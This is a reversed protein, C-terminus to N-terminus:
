EDRETPNWYPELSLGGVRWTGRVRRLVLRLLFEDRGRPFVTNRLWVDATAADTEVRVDRIRAEGIAPNWQQGERSRYANALREECLSALTAGDGRRSAEVFKKVLSRVAESEDNRSTVHSEAGLPAYRLTVRNRDCRRIEFKFLNGKGSRVLFTAGPRVAEGHVELQWDLVAPAHKLEEFPTAVPQIAADGGVHRLGDFRKTMAMIEPDDPDIFLDDDVRQGEMDQTVIRIRGEDFAVLAGARGPDPFTLDLITPEPGHKRPRVHRELEEALANHGAHRAVDVPTVDNYHSKTGAVAQVDAGHELLLACVSAWGREAAQHLRTMSHAPWGLLTGDPLRANVDGGDALFQRVEALAAQELSEGPTPTAGAPVRPPASDPHRPEPARAPRQSELLTALGDAGMRWAGDIFRFPLDWEIWEADDAFRFRVKVITRAADSYAGVVQHRSRGRDYVALLRRPTDQKFREVFAEFALDAGDGASRAAYAERYDVADVLPEANGEALQDFYRTVTRVAGAKTDLPPRSEGCASLWATLVVLGLAPLLPAVGPLNGCDSEPVCRTPDLGRM